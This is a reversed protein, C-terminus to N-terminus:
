EFGYAATPLARQIHKRANASTCATKEFDMKLANSSSSHIPLKMSSYSKLLSGDMIVILAKITEGKVDAKSALSLNTGQLTRVQNQFSNMESDIWSLILM